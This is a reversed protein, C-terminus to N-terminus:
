VRCFYPCLKDWHIAGCTSGYYKQILNSDCLQGRNTPACKLSPGCTLSIIRGQNEIINNPGCVEDMHNLGCEPGPSKAQINSVYSKSWTKVQARMSSRHNSEPKEHFVLLNHAFQPNMNQGCLKVQLMQGMVNLGCKTQLIRGM